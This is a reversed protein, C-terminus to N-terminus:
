QRDNAQESLRKVKHLSSLWDRGATEEPSRPSAGRRCGSRATPLARPISPPRPDDPHHKAHRPDDRRNAWQVTLWVFVAALCCGVAIRPQAVALLFCLVIGLTRIAAVSSERFATATRSPHEIEMGGIKCRRAQFATAFDPRVSKAKGRDGSEPYFGSMLPWPLDSFM